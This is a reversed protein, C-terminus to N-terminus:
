RPWQRSPNSNQQKGVHYEYIRKRKQCLKSLQVSLKDCQLCLRLKENTLQWGFFLWVIVQKIDTDGMRSYKKLLFNSWCMGKTLGYLFIKWCFTQDFCVIKINTRCVWSYKSASLKIVMNSKSRWLDCTKSRKLHNLFM